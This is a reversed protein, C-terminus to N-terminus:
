MTYLCTMSINNCCMNVPLYEFVCVFKSTDDIIEYWGDVVYVAVLTAVVSAITDDPNYVLIKTLHQLTCHTPIIPLITAFKSFKFKYESNYSPYIFSSRISWYIVKFYPNKFISCKKSGVTCQLCFVICKYIVVVCYAKLLNLQIRSNNKNFVDAFKGIWICTFRQLLGQLWCGFM